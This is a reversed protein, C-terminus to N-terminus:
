HSAPPTGGPTIGLPSLAAAAAATGSTGILVLAETAGRPLPQPTLGTRRGVRQVLWARDDAGAARLLGKARLVPEPLSDLAARLEREELPRAPHLTITEFLTAHRAPRSPGIRRDGGPEGLVVEMPVAGHAIPLLRARPALPTLATRVADMVEASVLDPKTLLLLDAGQVQRRATEGVLRDSLLPTIASADALVVVGALVLDPDILAIEAIRWPDAVGSAEVVIHDPAPGRALLTAIGRGLDDGMACCVCGNSLAITDGDRAAILSADINVAGFDNVLVAIRRGGPEALLANVLTTKGAGLFGGIVTLPVRLGANIRM